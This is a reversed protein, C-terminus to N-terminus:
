TSGQADADIDKDHSPRPTVYGSSFQTEKPMEYQLTDSHKKEESKIPLHTGNKARDIIKNFFSM